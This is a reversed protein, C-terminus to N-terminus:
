RERQQPTARDILRKECWCRQGVGDIMKSENLSIRDTRRRARLIENESVANGAIACTVELPLVLREIDFLIMQVRVSEDRLLHPLQQM